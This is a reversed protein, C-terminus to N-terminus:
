SKRFYELARWVVDVGFILCLLMHATELAKKQIAEFTLPPRKETQQLLKPRASTLIQLTRPRPKYLNCAESDLELYGIPPELIKTGPHSCFPIQPNGASAEDWFCSVCDVCRCPRSWPETGDKFNYSLDSIVPLGYHRDKSNPM